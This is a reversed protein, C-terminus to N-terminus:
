IHFNYEEGESFELPLMSDFNYLHNPKIYTFSVTQFLCFHLICQKLFHMCKTADQSVKFICLDSKLAVHILLTVTMRLFPNPKREVISLCQYFYSFPRPYSIVRYLELTTSTNSAFDCINAHIAGVESARSGVLSPIVSARAPLGYSEGFRYVCHNWKKKSRKKKKYGSRLYTTLFPFYLALNRVQLFRRYM